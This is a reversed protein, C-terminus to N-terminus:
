TKPSRDIRTPIPAGVHVIAGDPKMYGGFPYFEGHETLMREALPLIANTLTESDQKSNM